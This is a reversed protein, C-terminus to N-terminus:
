RARAASKARWAARRRGDLHRRAGVRQRDACAGGFFDERLLERNHPAMAASGDVGAWAVGRSEFSLQWHFQSRLQLAGARRLLPTLGLTSRATSATSTSPRCQPSTSTKSAVY